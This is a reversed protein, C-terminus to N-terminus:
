FFDFVTNVRSQIAACARLLMPDVQIKSTAEPPPAFIRDLWLLSTLPRLDEAESSPEAPLVNLPIQCRTSHSEKIAGTTEPQQPFKM